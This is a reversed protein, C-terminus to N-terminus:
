GAAPAPRAAVSSGAMANPAAQVGRQLAALVEDRPGFAKVQGEQLIL